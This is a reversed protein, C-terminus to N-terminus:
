EVMSMALKIKELGLKPDKFSHEIGKSDFFHFCMEKNPAKTKLDEISKKGCTIAREVLKIDEDVIPKISDLESKYEELVYNNNEELEKIGTKFKKIKIIDDKIKQITEEIKGTNSRKLFTELSSNFNEELGQIEIKKNGIDHLVLRLKKLKALGERANAFESEADYVKLKRSMALLAFAQNIEEKVRSLIDNKELYGDEAVLADRFVYLGKIKLEELSLTKSDSSFARRELIRTRHLMKADLNAKLKLLQSFCPSFFYSRKSCCDIKTTKHKVFTNAKLPPLIEFSQAAISGTQSDVMTSVPARTQRSCLFMRLNLVPLRFSRTRETLRFGNTAYLQHKVTNIKRGNAFGPTQHLAVFIRREGLRGINNRIESLTSRSHNSFSPSKRLAKCSTRTSSYSKKSFSVNGRQNLSHIMFNGGSNIAATEVSASLTLDPNRRSDM